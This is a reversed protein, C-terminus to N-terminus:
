VIFRKMLEKMSISHNEITKLPTLFLIVLSPFTLKLESNFSVAPNADTADIVEASNGEVQEVPLVRPSKRDGCWWVGCWVVGGCVVGCWVM